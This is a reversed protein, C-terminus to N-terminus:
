GEPRLQFMVEELSGEQSRGGGCGLSHPWLAQTSHRRAYNDAAGDAKAVPCCVGQRDLAHSNQECKHEEYTPIHGCLAM